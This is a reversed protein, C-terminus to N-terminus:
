PAKTQPPPAPQPLPPAGQGCSSCRTGWDPQQSGYKFIAPVLGVFGLFADDAFTAAQDLIDYVARIPASEDYLKKAENEAAVLCKNVSPFQQALYQSPGLVKLTQWQATAIQWDSSVQSELGSFAASVDQM